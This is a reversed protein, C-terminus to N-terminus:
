TDAQWTIPWFTGPPVASIPGVLDPGGIKALLVFLQAAASREPEGWRQPIGRRYWDRLRELEGDDAAGLLQRIRQWEADSTALITRAKRSAATFGDILAPNREAWHQSFTYGIFPVGSSIGLGSVADEVDLIRRAGAAEAKAAFPWYTLLADLRGAKMQEALLPPPGFSKDALANIDINYKSTAFARLILWSKDIPSGAIGLAHGALDPVDRVPSNAPAILAGVANSFPVFTWDAGSGRQRAVWLWDVVIMDVNGSQLAVQAAQAAALEVPEITIDAAVDLQHHRIVDVEWSVTGFRLVGVRIAPQPAAQVPMAAAAVAAGLLARRAVPM